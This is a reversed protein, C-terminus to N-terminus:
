LCRKINLKNLLTDLEQSVYIVESNTLTKEETIINLEKRKQEIQKLLKGKYFDSMTIGKYHKGM